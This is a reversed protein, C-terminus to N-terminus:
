NEAQKVLDNSFRQIIQTLESSRSSLEESANRLDGAHTTTSQVNKM